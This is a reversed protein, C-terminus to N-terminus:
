PRSVPEVFLGNPEFFLEPLTQARDGFIAGFVTCNGIMQEGSGDQRVPPFHIPQIISDEYFLARLELPYLM